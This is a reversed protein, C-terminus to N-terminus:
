QVNGWTLGQIVQVTGFTNIILGRRPPEHFHSAIYARRNGVGKGPIAISKLFYFMHHLGLNMIQENGKGVLVTDGNPITSVPDIPSIEQGERQNVSEPSFDSAFWDLSWLVLIDFQQAWGGGTEGDTRDRYM